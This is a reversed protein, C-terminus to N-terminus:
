RVPIGGDEGYLIPHERQQLVNNLCFQLDREVDCALSMLLLLLFRDPIRQQSLLALFLLLM